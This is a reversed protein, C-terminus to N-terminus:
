LLVASLNMSKLVVKYSGRGRAGPFETHEKAQVSTLESLSVLKRAMKIEEKVVTSETIVQSSKVNRTLASQPYHEFGM